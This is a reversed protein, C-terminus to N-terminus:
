SSAIFNNGTVKDAATASATACSAEACPTFTEGFTDGLTEGLTEGLTSWCPTCFLLWAPLPLWLV